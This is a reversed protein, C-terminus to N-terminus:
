RESRPRFRVLLLVAVLLGLAAAVIPWWDPLGGGPEILAPQTAAATVTVAAIATTFLQTGTAGRAAAVQAVYAGPDAISLTGTYHRPDTPSQVLSVETSIPGRQVRVQLILQGPMALGPAPWELNPEVVVDVSIPTRAAVASSSLALRARALLSIPVGTPPGVGRINLLFDEDMCGSDLCLQGPLGIELRGVGGVPVILQAVNHGHWDSAAFATNAKASGHAPFLSMRVGGSIAQGDSAQWVFAGVRISAGAAADLPLPQDLWADGPPFIQESPEASAGPGPSVGLSARPAAVAATTALLMALVLSRGALPQIRIV